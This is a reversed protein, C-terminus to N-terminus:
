WSVSMNWSDCLCDLCMQNLVSGDKFPVIDVGSYVVSIEFRDGASATSMQCKCHCGNLM